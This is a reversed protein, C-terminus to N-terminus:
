IKWKKFNWFKLKLVLFGFGSILFDMQWIESIRLIVFGISDSNESSLNRWFNSIQFREFHWFIRKATPDFRTAYNKYKKVFNQSFQKTWIEIDNISEYTFDIFKSKLRRLSTSPTYKERLFAKQRFKMMKSGFKLNLFTSDWFKVIRPTKKHRQRSYRIAFLMSLSISCFLYRFAHRLVEWLLKRKVCGNKYFDYIKHFQDILFWRWFNLTM